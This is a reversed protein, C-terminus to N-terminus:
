SNNKIIEVVKPVVETANGKLFYTFPIVNEPPTVDICISTKHPNHNFTNIFSAAPYVVGSSGIQIFVDAELLLSVIEETNLVPEKFLVVNNRLRGGCHKCTDGFLFSQNEVHRCKECRSTYLDGHLHIVDKSGSREHLHDINQTIITCGLDALAKHALNPHALDAKHKFQHHFDYLFQPDTELTDPRLKYILDPNKDYIGSERFTEIGSEKSIGAGTLVLVKKGMFNITSLEDWQRTDLAPEEKKRKFLSLFKFMVSYITSILYLFMNNLINKFENIM